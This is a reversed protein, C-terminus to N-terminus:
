YSCECSIAKKKRSAGSSHRTNRSDDEGKSKLDELQRRLLLSEM